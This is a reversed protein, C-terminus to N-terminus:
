ESGINAAKVIAAYKALDSKIMAALQEPALGGPDMGISKLKDRTDQEGMVRSAEQYLRSVVDKPTGAPAFLGAWVSIDYGPV